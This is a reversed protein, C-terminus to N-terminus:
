DQPVVKDSSPDYVGDDSKAGSGATDDAIHLVATAGADVDVTRTVAQRGPAKIRITHTGPLVDFKGGKSDQSLVRGDLEIQSSTDLMLM